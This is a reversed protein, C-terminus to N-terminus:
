DRSLAAAFALRHHSARMLASDAEVGDGIARVARARQIWNYNASDRLSLREATLSRALEHRGARLAAELLTRQLADRQAHSGGFRHLHRRIPALHAIVDDYRSEGFAVVAECAPIGIETAMRGNTGAASEAASRMRTIVGRADALRGAGVCAMVAHMDNFSYWPAMETKLAWADALPAFRGGTDAGDLLFRWLLASADLMEIPVGASGEHHLQADYIELAKAPDGAEMCYLAFHWWNHTTFLNGSGWDAERDLMFRLGEDVRGQMEYTHVVAHVAWVDDGNAELAALGSEEAPGYHGSEELGFAHMGLVFGVYPSVPDVELLSRGVRDRLNTADGLFFDLQHGIALALLDTPWLVLVEDLLVSATVWDGALWADVAAAHFRERPHDALTRLHSAAESAGALDSSDTGMLSLYSNLAHGMPAHGHDTALSEAAGIVGPHFRLLRDVAHDYLAVADLSGTMPNGNEDHLISTM